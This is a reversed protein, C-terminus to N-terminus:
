HVPKPIFVENAADEINTLLLKVKDEISLGEAIDSWDYANLAESFNDWQNSPM